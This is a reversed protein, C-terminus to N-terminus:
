RILRRVNSQNYKECSIFVMGATVVDNTHVLFGSARTVRVFNTMVCWLVRGCLCDQGIIEVKPFKSDFKERCEWDTTM